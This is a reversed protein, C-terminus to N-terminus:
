LPVMAIGLVKGLGFTQAFVVLHRPVGAPGDGLPVNVTQTAAGKLMAVKTLSRVVAVHTLTRGKNEGRSVRSSVQNEAVAALIDVGQKPLEGSIAFTVNLMKGEAKASVVKVAVKPAVNGAALAKLIAAGDSGLVQSDGNVVMQPTYVEAEFREGYANQRDTFKQQSFPDAWGLQNWYTVHESLAVVTQGSVTKGDLKQLLEDAPPCSSCGESTFLEVLVARAPAPTEASRADLGSAASLAFMTIVLSRKMMSTKMIQNISLLLWDSSM